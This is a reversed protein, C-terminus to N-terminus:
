GRGRVRKQLPPPARVFKSGWRHDHDGKGLWPFSAPAWVRSWGKASGGQLATCWGWGVKPCGVPPCRPAPHGRCGGPPACLGRWTGGLGSATVWPHRLRAPSPRSTGGHSPSASGSGNPTSFPPPFRRASCPLPTAAKPTCGGATGWGPQTSCGVMPIDGDGDGCTDRCPQARPSRPSSSAAPADRSRGRLGGPLHPCAPSAAGSRHKKQPFSCAGPSSSAAGLVPLRELCRAKAQLLTGARPVSCGRLFTPLVWLHQHTDGQIDPLRSSRPRPAGHSARTIRAREPHRPPDKVFQM